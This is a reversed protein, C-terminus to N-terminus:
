DKLADAISLQEEWILGSSPCFEGFGRDEMRLKVTEADPCSATLHIRTTGAPRDPVGSLTVVIQRVKKGNVFSMRLSFAHDTDLLFDCEGGADFWNMGADLLPFCIEEGRREAELGLNVKLMDRGLYVYEPDTKRGSKQAAKYGGAYCAGKSYLNNGRFVRRNQCMAQLTNPYWDGDFGDGILYVTDIIRGESLKRFLALFASDMEEAHEQEPKKAEYEGKQCEEKEPLERALGAHEEESVTVTVPRTHHSAEFLLTRLTRGGFDCILCQHRWLEPPQNINYYFFSEARSQCSVRDPPLSLLLAIKETMELVQNDVREFTFMFFDIKELRLPAHGMGRASGGPLSLSRKIFLALLATADFIEGAAEVQERRLARSLLRDVLVGEGKGSVELAERGYTWVDRDTRRCLVAPIMSEEGETEACLTEPKQGGSPCFSIQAYRDDLDMGLVGGAGKKEANGLFM